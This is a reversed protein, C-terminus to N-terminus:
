HFYSLFCFSLCCTLKIIKEYNLFHTTNTFKLREFTSCNQKIVLLVSTIININYTMTSKYRSYRMANM